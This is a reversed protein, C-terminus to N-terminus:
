KLFKVEILKDIGEVAMYYRGNSRLIVVKPRYSYHYVYDFTVQKWIQGNELQFITDGTWGKFEGNIRSEVRESTMVSPQDLPIPEQANAAAKAMEKGAVVAAGVVVAGAVLGKLADRLQANDREREQRMREHEAFAQEDRRHNVEVVMGDAIRYIYFDDGVKYTIVEHTHKEHQEGETTVTKREFPIGLKLVRQLSSGPQIAEYESAQKSNVFFATCSPLFIALLATAAVSKSRGIRM